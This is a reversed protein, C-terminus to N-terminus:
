VIGDDELLGVFLPIAMAAGPNEVAWAKAREWGAGLDIGGVEFSKEIAGPLKPREGLGGGGGTGGTGSAVDAGATGGARAAASAETAAQEIEAPSLGQGQLELTKDQYARQAAAENAPGTSAPAGQAPTKPQSQERAKQKRQKGREALRKKRAAGRADLNKQTELHFLEDSQSSSLDSKRQKKELKGRRVDEFKQRTELEAEGVSKSLREREAARGKRDADWKNVKKQGRSKAINRRIEEPSKPSYGPARVRTSVPAGSQGAGRRAAFDGPEIKGAPVHKKGGLIGLEKQKVRQEMTGFGPTKSTELPSSPVGARAAQYKTKAQRPLAELERRATSFAGPERWWKKVRSIQDGMAKRGKGVAATARSAGSSVAGAAEGAVDGLGRYMRRGVDVAEGAGRWLAGPAGKLLKWAKGIFAQKFLGPNDYFFQIDPDRYYRSPDEHVWSAFKQFEASATKELAGSIKEFEVQHAAVAAAKAFLGPQIIM